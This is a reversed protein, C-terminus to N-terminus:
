EKNDEPPPGFFADRQTHLSDHQEAPTLYVHPVSLCLRGQLPSTICSSMLTALKGHIDDLVEVDVVKKKENACKNKEHRVFDIIKLIDAVINSM